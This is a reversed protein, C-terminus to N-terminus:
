RSNRFNRSTGGLEPALECLTEAAIIAAALGAKMDATGRWLHPRQPRGQLRISVGAVVPSSSMSTVTSTCARAPRSLRKRAIVNIRPYQDCDGPTGTGRVYEVEFGAAGLRQGIWESCEQYADGPPNTTPIRVLQRTLEILDDRRRDIARLLHDPVISM